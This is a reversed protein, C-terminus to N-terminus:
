WLGGNIPEVKKKSEGRVETAREKVEDERTFLKLGLGAQYALLKAGARAMADNIDRSNPNIIAAYKPPNGMVPYFLPTGSIGDKYFYCSVYASGDPLPHLPSNTDDCYNFRIELGPLHVALLLPIYANRIYDMGRETTVYPAVDVKYLEQFKEPTILM